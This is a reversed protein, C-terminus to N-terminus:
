EQPLEDFFKFEIRAWHPEDGEADDGYVKQLTNWNKINVEEVINAFKLNNSM